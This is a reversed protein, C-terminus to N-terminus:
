CPASGWRALPSSSGVAAGVTFVLFFTGIAEVAYKAGPRPGTVVGTGDHGDVVQTAEHATVMAGVM